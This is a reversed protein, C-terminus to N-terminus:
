EGGLLDSVTVESTLYGREDMWDLVAQVQTADPPAALPYGSVQYTEALAEPLGAKDILTSRYDDPADNIDSVAADWASLLATVSAAGAETRAYEASVVLVSQSLNASAATDDGGSVVRAGSQEALSVFPEPLSAAALQGSMLLQYRVPMKPVEEKVVDDPDVGADQMLRDLVYETITGAATGVATGQLDAITEADSGPAAVIAFRGQATDAGLMVTPIIVPTGAAHLKAAVILDTMLADVTGATFAAQCEQASQFTVIEVDLGESAFHEREEAVWLPLSDQTALTGIVIAAPAVGESGGDAPAAPTDDQAACGVLLLLAAMMAVLFCRTISGDRIM